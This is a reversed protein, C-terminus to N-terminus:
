YLGEINEHKRSTLEYLIQVTKHQSDLRVSAKSSAKELQIKMRADLAPRLENM